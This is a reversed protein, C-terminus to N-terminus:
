LKLGKPVKKLNDALRELQRNLEAVNGALSEIRCNLGDLKACRVEYEDVTLQLSVDLTDAEIRQRM